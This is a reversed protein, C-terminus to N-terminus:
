DRDRFEEYWNQTIHIAPKRQPASEEEVEEIMVFRGDEAVDYTWVIDLLSADSFLREAPGIGFESGTTVNVAM